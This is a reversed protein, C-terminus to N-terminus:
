WWDDLEDDEDEEDDNRGEDEDDREDGVDEDQDSSKDEEDESEPKNEDDKSTKAAQEEEDHETEAVVSSREAEMEALVRENNRKEEILRQWTEPDAEQLHDLWEEETRAYFGSSKLEEYEYKCRPLDGKVHIGYKPCESACHYYSVEEGTEPCIHDPVPGTYRGQVGRMRIYKNSSRPRFFHTM